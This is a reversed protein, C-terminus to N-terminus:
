QQATFTRRIKKPADTVTFELNDIRTREVAVAVRAPAVTQQGRLTARDIELQYTGPELYLSFFGDARTFGRHQRGAADTAVIEFGSLDEKTEGKIAKLLAADASTTKAFRVQGECVTPKTLGLSLDTVLGKAIDLQQENATTKQNYQVDAPPTVVLPYKGSETPPLTFRGEEDTLAQAQGAAVKVGGIAPEGRDFNGNNNLDEFVRGTAQGRRPLWPVPISFDHRFTLM